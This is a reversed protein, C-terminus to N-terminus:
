TVWLSLSVFFFFAKGYKFRVIFSKQLHGVQENYHKFMSHDRVIEDKKHLLSGITFSSYPHYQCDYFRSDNNKM